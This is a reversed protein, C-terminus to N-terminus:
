YLDEDDVVLEPKEKKLPAAPTVISKIALALDHEFEQM